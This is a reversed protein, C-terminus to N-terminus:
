IGALEARFEQVWELEGAIMARARRALAWRHPPCGEARLFDELDAWGRARERLTEAYHDLANVAEGAGVVDSNYIAIDMLWRPYEPTAMFHCVAGSMAKRGTQTISYTRRARGQVVSETSSVFGRSELSELVKYVTPRALGAWTGMDRYEVQKRIEWPHMPREILLGLLAVDTGSLQSKMTEM